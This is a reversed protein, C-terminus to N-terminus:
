DAIPTAQDAALHWAGDQRVYVAMFRATYDFREGDNVGRGRWRGVLIAAYGHVAVRYEDSQALDWLRKGSQYSQLVEAKGIVKGDARVQVYDEALIERIVDIDLDRHAQVWRREVEIIEGEPTTDPQSMRLRM